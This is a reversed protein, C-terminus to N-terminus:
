RHTLQTQQSASEHIHKIMAKSQIASPSVIGHLYVRNKIIEVRQNSILLFHILSIYIKKRRFSILNKHCIIKDKCSFTRLSKNQAKKKFLFPLLNDFM